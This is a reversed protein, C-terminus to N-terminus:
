AVEGVLDPTDADARAAEREAGRRTHEALEGEVAELCRDGDADRAADHQHQNVLMDVGTPADHRPLPWALRPDQLASTSLTLPPVVAVDQRVGVPLLAVPQRRALRDDRVGGDARAPMQRRVSGPPVGTHRKFARSFSPESEYGLRTAVEAVSLREESLLVSALHMRWRALYRAPSTGMLTTFRESFLSRSMNAASALSTVSWPQEPQRHVLALVRGIHPDRTAALWGVTDQRGREVWARIVRTIVIEALRTMVTASGIRPICAEVAMANLMTVLSPDHIGGGPLHLVDPMLELLPHVAPEEFQVTSCMVLTRDGSGGAQVRSVVKTIPQRQLQDFPQIVGDQRDMMEFPLGRAMFVVDGGQLFVPERGHVRLWCTGEAVFLFSATGHPQFEYGWPARLESGCYSACSLRLDQLVESLPDITSTSLEVSSSCSLM